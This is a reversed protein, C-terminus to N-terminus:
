LYEIGGNLPCTPPIFKFFGELILPDSENELEDKIFLGLEYAM